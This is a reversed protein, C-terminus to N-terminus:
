NADTLANEPVVLCFWQAEVAIMPNGRKDTKGVIYGIGKQELRRGTAKITEIEYRVTDGPRVQNVFRVEVLKAFLFLKKEEDTAGLRYGAGGCQAMSEVLIVGPCVPYSPFHGKYFYRDPGYDVEAITKEPSCELIRDCFLFPDRHPLVTKIVEQDYM